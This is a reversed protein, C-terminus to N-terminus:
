GTGKGQFEGIAYDIATGSSLSILGVLRAVPFGLGTKQCQQQHHKKQNEPTDPMMVTTGDVLLVNLGKWSWLKGSNIHLILGIRQVEKILWSLSLRKRAKCYPGANFSNASLGEFIRDSILHAIVQKCSGNDNLAQWLFINLTV